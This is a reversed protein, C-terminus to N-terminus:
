RAILAAPQQSLLWTPGRLPAVMLRWCKSLSLPRWVAKRERTEHWLFIGVMCENEIKNSTLNTISSMLLKPETIDIHRWILTTPTTGTITTYSLDGGINQPEKEFDEKWWSKEECLGALGTRIHTLSVSPASLNQVSAHPCAGNEQGLGQDCVEKVLRGDSSRSDGGSGVHVAAATETFNSLKTYILLLLVILLDAIKKTVPSTSLIFCM